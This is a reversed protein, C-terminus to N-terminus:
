QVRGTRELAQHLRPPGSNLGQNTELWHVAYRALLDIEINVAAGPALDRLNTVELTHPILMVEFGTTDCENITLSVGDLAVSGKPALYKLLDAPPRVNVRRADGVATVAEVRAIGDVHGAVWHGGLGDGVRLSRELNVVAGIPLNGLTTREVTEASLDCAFGVDSPELATVCVGNVAISAGLELSLHPAAIRARFGPGHPSRQTLAGTTQILGTFMPPSVYCASARPEATAAM